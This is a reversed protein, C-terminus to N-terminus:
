AEGPGSWPETAQERIRAQPSRPPSCRRLVWGRGCRNPRARTHRARRTPVGPRLHRTSRGTAGAATDPRGIPESPTPVRQGRREGHAERRRPVAPARQRSRPATAPAPRVAGAGRAAGESRLRDNDCGAMPRNTDGSMESTVMIRVTNTTHTTSDAASDDAVRAAACSPTVSDPRKSLESDPSGIGPTTTTISSSPRVVVDAASPM